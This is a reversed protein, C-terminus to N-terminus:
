PYIENVGINFTSPCWGQKASNGHEILRSSAMSMRRLKCGCKSRTRSHVRTDVLKQFINLTAAFCIDPVSWSENSKPPDVPPLVFNDDGNSQGEEVVQATDSASTDPVAKDLAAKGPGVKGTTTKALVAKDAAAQSPDVKGPTTKGHVAKEPAAKSPAATGPAAKSPAATGPAAKSPAATDPAATGLAAKGPAAPDPDVLFSIQLAEMSRQKEEELEFVTM